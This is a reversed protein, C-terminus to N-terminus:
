PIGQSNNGQDTYGGEGGGAAGRAGVYHPPGRLPLPRPATLSSRGLNPTTTGSDLQLNGVIRM